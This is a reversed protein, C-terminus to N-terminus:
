KNKLDKKLKEARYKIYVNNIAYIIDVFESFPGIIGFTKEYIKLESLPIGGSETASNSLKYYANLFWDYSHDLKPIHNLPTDEGNKALKEFM